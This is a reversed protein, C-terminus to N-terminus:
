LKINNLKDELGNWELEKILFKWHESKYKKWVHGMWVKM